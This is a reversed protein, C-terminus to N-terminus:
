WRGRRERYRDDRHDAKRFSHGRYIDVSRRGGDRVERWDYGNWIFKEGRNNVVWPQEYTGGIRVAGGAVRSWDRGNWRYIGYGGSRRDTGIVWGDGVDTATGPMRRWGRGEWHYIGYRDHGLGLRWGGDYDRDRASASVSIGLLCMVLVFKHYTSM